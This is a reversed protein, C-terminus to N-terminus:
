CWFGAFYSCLTQGNAFLSGLTMGLECVGGFVGNLM